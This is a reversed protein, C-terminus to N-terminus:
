FSSIKDEKSALITAANRDIKLTLNLAASFYYDVPGTGIGISDTEFLQEDTLLSLAETAKGNVLVMKLIQEKLDATSGSTASTTTTAAASAILCNETGNEPGASSRVSGIMYRIEEKLQASLSGDGVQAYVIVISGDPMQFYSDQLGTQEIYISAYPMSNLTIVQKNADQGYELTSLYKDLTLKQSNEDRAVVIVASNPYVRAFSVQGNPVDKKWFIMQDSAPVKEWTFPYKIKYGENYNNCSNWGASMPYKDLKNQEVYIARFIAEAFEVRSMKREPMYSNDSRGEILQRNKAYEVYPAYWASTSVDSYPSTSVAPENFNTILTKEIIKLSESATIENAPKFSGDTYGQVVNLSFAKQVYPYYWDSAKVDPFNIKQLSISEDGRLLKRALFVIKLAEARNITKDPQFSGDPYGGIINNLKLYEVAVSHESHDAVDPFVSGAAVINSCSLNFFFILCGTLLKNKRTLKM